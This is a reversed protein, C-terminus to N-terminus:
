AWIKYTTETILEGCARIRNMLCWTSSVLMAKTVTLVLSMLAAVVLLVDLAVDVNGDLVWSMTM